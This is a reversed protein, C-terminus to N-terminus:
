AGLVEDVAGKLQELFPIIKSELADATKSDNEEKLAEGLAIIGPNIEEKKIREKDENIVDSTRNYIEIMWNFSDMCNKLFNDTDSKRSGRLETILVKMGPILKGLYESMVRLAEKTELTLERMKKRSRETQDYIM